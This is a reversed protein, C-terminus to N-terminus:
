VNSEGKMLFLDAAKLSNFEYRTGNLVIIVHSDDYQSKGRELKVEM